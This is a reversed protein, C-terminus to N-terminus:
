NKKKKKPKKKKSASPPGSRAQSNNDDGDSDSQAGHSSATSKPATGKDSGTSSSQSALKKKEEMQLKAQAARINELMALKALSPPASPTPTVPKAPAAPVAPRSGLLKLEGPNPEFLRSANIAATKLTRQKPIDQYIERCMTAQLAESAVAFIASGWGESYENAEAAVESLEIDLEKEAVLLRELLEDGVLGRQLLNMLAPKAEKLAM